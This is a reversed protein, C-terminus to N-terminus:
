IQSYEKLVSRVDLFADYLRFRAKKAKTKYKIALSLNEPGKASNFFEEVANYAMPTDNGWISIIKLDTESLDPFGLSELLAVNQLAAKSTMYGSKQAEAKWELFDSRFKEQVPQGPIYNNILISLESLLRRAEAKIQAQAEPSSTKEAPASPPNGPSVAEPRAPKAENNPRGEGFNPLFRRFDM